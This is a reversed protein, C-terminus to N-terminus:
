HASFIDRLVLMGSSHTKRVTYLLKRMTYKLKNRLQFVFKNTGLTKDTM